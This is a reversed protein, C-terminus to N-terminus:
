ARLRAGLATPALPRAQVVDTLPDLTVPCALVNDHLMIIAHEVCAYSWACVCATADAGQLSYTGAICDTCVSAGAASQTGAPCELCVSADTAEIGFATSYTGAECLTCAAAGAEAYSGRTCNFCFQSLNGYVTAVTVISM